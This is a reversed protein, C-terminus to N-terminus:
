DLGLVTIAQSIYDDTRGEVTDIARDFFPDGKYGPHPKGKGGPSLGIYVWSGGILVPSGIDHPGTGEHVYGAYEIDTGIIWNNGGGTAQISNALTNTLRPVEDASVSLFDDKLIELATEGIQKMGEFLLEVESTDVPM